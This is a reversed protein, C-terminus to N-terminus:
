ARNVLKSEFKARVNHYWMERDFGFTIWGNEDAERLCPIQYIQFFNIMAVNGSQTRAICKNLQLHEMAYDLFLFHAETALGTRHTSAHLIIGFEGEGDGMSRFGCVGIFQNTAQLIIDFNFAKGEQQAVRQNNRRETMETDSWLHNMSPLLNMTEDDSFLVRCDEDFLKRPPSLLFLRASRLEVEM